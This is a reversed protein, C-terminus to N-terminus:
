RLFRSLCFGALAGILVSRLPYDQVYSEVKAIQEKGQEAYAEVTEKSVDTLENVIKSASKVAVKGTEQLSDKVDFVAERVRDTAGNASHGTHGKM